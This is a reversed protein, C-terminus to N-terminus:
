RRHRRETEREDDQETGSSGLCRVIDRAIWALVRGNPEESASADGHCKMDTTQLRPFGRGSSDTKSLHPDNLYSASVAFAIFACRAVGDLEVSSEVWISRKGFYSCKITM